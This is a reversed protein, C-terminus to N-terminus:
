DGGGGGCGGGCGSGCGSDGGCGSDHSGESGCGSGTGSSGDGSGGGQGKGSFALVIITPIMTFFFVIWQGQFIGFLLGPLNIVILPILRDKPKRILWHTRKNVRVFDVDGFRIRSPPWIDRPPEENFMERYLRLSAEYQAYFKDRESEGGKTPNHHVPKGIVNKCLDTWYSETYTMHLHWAQDVADSPTVSFPSVACLFIFKRYQETVRQAYNLVWNNERALRDSFQLSSHPDDFPFELIKTWLETEHPKM